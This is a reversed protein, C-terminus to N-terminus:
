SHPRGPLWDGRCRSTMTRYSMRIPAVILGSILGAYGVFGLLQNTHRPANPVADRELM